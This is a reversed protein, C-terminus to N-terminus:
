WLSTETLRQSIKNAAILLAFSIVSNFLGIATSYGYIHEQLGKRYVFSSIVDATEFTNSNYLLIIKEFGVNMMNGIRLILMIITTPLIGPLTIHWMKRWRGAGDLTAAEYLQPDINSLAAIYLISGFGVSQWIGSAVYITRFYEPKGLLGIKETGFLTHMINVIFGRSSCFEIILSAVVVLSIFHPMYTITQVIKKFRLNKVENLLLALIIPAPFGFILDYVNILFTNRLLRWFYYSGFFEKFHKLGVWDSGMVGLAPKYNQFAIIIGYMPVYCFVIFFAVVPIAMLYTYKNRRFDKCLSAKTYVHPKKTATKIKM